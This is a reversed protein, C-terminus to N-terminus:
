SRNEIQSMTTQKRMPARSGQAQPLQIGPHATQANEGATRDSRQEPSRNTQGHDIGTIGSMKLSWGRRQFSNMPM